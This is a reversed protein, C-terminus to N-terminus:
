PAWLGASGLDKLAEAFEGAIGTSALIYQRGDFRNHDETPYLPKAIDFDVDLHVISGKHNTTRQIINSGDTRAVERVKAEM